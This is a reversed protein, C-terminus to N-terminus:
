PPSLALLMGSGVLGSNSGNLSAKHLRARAKRM